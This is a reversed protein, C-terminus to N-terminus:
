LGSTCDRRYRKFCLYNIKLCAVEMTFRTRTCFSVVYEVAGVVSDIKYAFDRKYGVFKQIITIVGFISYILSIQIEKETRKAKMM